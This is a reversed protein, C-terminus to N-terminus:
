SLENEEVLDLSFNHNKLISTESISQASLMNIKYFKPTTVMPELKHYAGKEVFNQKKLEFKKDNTSFDPKQDKFNVNKVM